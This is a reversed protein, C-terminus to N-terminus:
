DLGGAVAFAFDLLAMISEIAFHVEVSVFTRREGKWIPGFFEIGVLLEKQKTGRRRLM